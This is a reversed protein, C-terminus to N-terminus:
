RPHNQARREADERELEELLADGDVDPNRQAVALMRAFRRERAAERNRSDALIARAYALAAKVDDLSLQPYEVLLRKPDPDISLKELVHEVSIGSGSITPLVDPTGPGTVIRDPYTPPRKAM